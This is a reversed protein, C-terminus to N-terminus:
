WLGDEGVNRGNVARDIPMLLGLFNPGIKVLVRDLEDEGFLLDAMRGQAKDAKVKSFRSLLGPDLCIVGPVVSPRRYHDRFLGMVADYVALAETDQAVPVRTVGSGMPEVDLGTLSLSLGVPVKKAGRVYRELETAAEKTLLAVSPGQPGEYDRAPVTEVGAAYRDTGCVRLVQLAPDVAIWVHQIKSAAPVFALANSLGRAFLEADVTLSTTM